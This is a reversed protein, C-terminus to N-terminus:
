SEAFREVTRDFEAESMGAFDLWAKKLRPDLLGDHANVADVAEARSMRGYAIHNFATETVVGFGFKVFKLWGNM